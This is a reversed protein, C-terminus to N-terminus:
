VVVVLRVLFHVVLNQVVVTYALIYDLLHDEELSHILYAVELYSPVEVSYSSEVEVSYSDVGM